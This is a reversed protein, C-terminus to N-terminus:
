GETRRWVTREEAKEEPRNRKRSLSHPSRTIRLEGLLEPTLLLRVVQRKVVIDTRKWRDAVDPGPQILGDLASPGRLAKVKERAETLRRQIGPEARAALTASLAGSGVQDALDRLEGELTEVADEAVQLEEEAAEAGASLEAYVEPRALYALVVREAYSDLAAKPFRVHGPGGCAYEEMGRRVRMVVVHSCVDCLVIRSLLNKAGGDRYTRRDPDAFMRQVARFRAVSVLAEWTAPTRTATPSLTQNRRQPDHVRSGTYSENRAISALHRDTYPQGKGNRYGQKEFDRTIAQMSERAHLRRFLERIMTAEPEKPVQRVVRVQRGKVTV